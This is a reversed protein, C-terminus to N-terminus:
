NIDKITNPAANSTHLSNNSYSDRNLLAHWRCNTRFEMLKTTRISSSSVPVAFNAGHLITIRLHTAAIRGSTGPRVHGVFLHRFGNVMLIEVSMAWHLLYKLLGLYPNNELPM